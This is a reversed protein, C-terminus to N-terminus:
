NRWFLKEVAIKGTTRKSDYTVKIEKKWICDFDDPMEYESIFVYNRKAIERCWDYFMEYNFNKTVYQKTSKYPPDLYFLCNSFKSPLYDDFSCNIFKIGKLNPAQKNANKLNELFYNRKGTKNRAYGGNFYMGGYSAFYGIGAIYHVSYKITRYKKVDQYHEFSCEQPFIDMDPYDRMYKLLEILDGNIDSGIRNECRIHDIMNGGGVFPEIYYKIDHSDICNQLFPLIYKRIRAKSGQYVM